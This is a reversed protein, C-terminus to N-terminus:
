FHEGDEVLSGGLGGDSLGGGLGLVLASRVRTDAVRRANDGLNGRRGGDHYTM